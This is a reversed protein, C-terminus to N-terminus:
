PANKILKHLVHLFHEVEKKTNYFYLSVRASANIGLKKALPQACHHGARVAIGYQNLYEAVDHPHIGEIVFSVISGEKKLQEIPGLVTVGPIKQMGDILKSVLESEHKRLLEFDVNNELYEIAAALGIAQAIPPTGAEFKQPPALFTAKDFDAEFIMGGGYDFPPVEDHLDKKIYLVGIGTPGLMKHGSFVLFDVDLEHVNIKKHAISQAADVLVRAGVKHAQKIIKEIDNTTGLANSIHSLGVLKTKDTLLKNLTNLELNGNKDVPIYKLTARKKKAVQQWPILNSHHELESILIEDGPNINQMGWSRAIDNIARTTGATFIIEQPLAGIFDAVKKRAQEYLGTAQEGLDYIGRGVNANETEYFHVIADIVQQPKQTTAANDFYILPKHTDAQLIPFDARLQTFM